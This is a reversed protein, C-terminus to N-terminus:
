EECFLLLLKKKCVYILVLQKIQRFVSYVNKGGLSSVCIGLLYMFLNEVDSIMLSICILVVILYRWVGTLIATMLFFVFLVHQNLTSSLISSKYM